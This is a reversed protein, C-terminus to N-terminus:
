HHHSEDNVHPPYILQINKPIVLTAHCGHDNHISFRMKAKKNRANIAAVTNRIISMGTRLRESSIRTVDFGPGNDAVEVCTEVDNMTVSISLRKDGTVQKLGHLIANEVIIQILMSPIRVSELCKREPVNLAYSFDEGLLSKEMEVYQSVFDLEEALTVNNESTMDLNARILQALRVLQDMEQQDATNARSNLVNFVFHPSIRQRANDMRMLMMDLRTQLRQKRVYNIWLVMLLLVIILAGISVWMVMRTQVYKMEQKDMAIQHHLRITDETLRTMFETARMHGLYYETSDSKAQRGRLGAYAQKYDGIAAYYRNMYDTRISTLGEDAVHSNDDERIIREVENYQKEKLAIGMRITNAYFIGVDVGQKRFYQEAETVYQRASDTQDLNLFVDAMNIKCLYMDFNEQASYQELLKKLRRFTSLAEEYEHHYYFYNGYNNLFYSQMNPKMEGLHRDTEEYYHKAQEFDHLTTYIRGLGMYLTLGTSGPLGLSDVLVLARRYWRTAEPMDNLEVYVDGINASVDPLSQKMDSHMMLDYAQKYISIISDANHHMMYHYAAKSNLAMAALGRTRPTQETQREYFHLTREVYPLTSDPTSTLLFHRGYMLHYDYWTLSDEAQQMEQRITDLVHPALHQMSDNLAAFRQQADETRRGTYHGDTSCAWLVLMSGVLFLTSFRHSSM